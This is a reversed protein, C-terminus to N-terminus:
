LRVCHLTVDIWDLCQKQLFLNREDEIRKVGGHGILILPVDVFM